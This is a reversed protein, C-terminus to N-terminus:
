LYTITICYVFPFTVIVAANLHSFVPLYVTFVAYFRPMLPCYTLNAGPILDFHSRSLGFDTSLFYAHPGVHPFVLFFGIFHANQGRIRHIVTHVTHIEVHRMCHIYMDPMCNIDAATVFEPPSPLPVAFTRPATEFRLLSPLFPTASATPWPGVPWGRPKGCKRQWLM